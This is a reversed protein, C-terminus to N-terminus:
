CALPGSPDRRHLPSARPRCGSDEAERRLDSVLLSLKLCALRPEVVQELETIDSCCVDLDLPDLLQSARQPLGAVQCIGLHDM